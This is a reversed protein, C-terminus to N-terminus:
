IMTQFRALLRELRKAGKKVFTKNRILTWDAPCIGKEASFKGQAEL